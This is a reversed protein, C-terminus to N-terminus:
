QVEGSSSRQHPTSTMILLHWQIELHRLPGNVRALYLSNPQVKVHSWSPCPYHLRGACVGHQDVRNRGPFVFYIYQLFALYAPPIPTSASNDDKRLSRAIHSPSLETLFVFSTRNAISQPFSAPINISGVNIMQKFGLFLLTDDELLTGTSLTLPCTPFPRRCSCKRRCFM